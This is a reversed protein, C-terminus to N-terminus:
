YVAQGSHLRKLDNPSAALVNTGKRILVKGGHQHVDERNWPPVIIAIVDLGLVEVSEISVAPPPAIGNHVANQVPQDLDQAPTDSGVITGDDEIGYFVIGGRATNAM